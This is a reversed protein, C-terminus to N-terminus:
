HVGQERQRRATRKPVTYYGLSSSKVGKVALSLKGGAGERRGRRQWQGCRAARMGHAAGSRRGIRRRRVVARTRTERHRLRPRQGLRITELGLPTPQQRGSKIRRTRV